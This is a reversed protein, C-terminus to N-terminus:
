AEWGMLFNERRIQEPTFNVAEQPLRETYRRGWDTLIQAHRSGQESIRRLRQPDWHPSLHRRLAAIREAHGAVTGLDHQEQPDDALNFLQVQPYGDHVVLKWDGQRVMANVEDRTNVTCYLSIVARDPDEDAHGALLHTLNVGHMEPLAPGRGIDILTPALDLLSVPQDISRGPPLRAPDRFILPVGVSGEYMSSKWWLGNEGIMDGHDSAYIVLCNDLGLAADVADLIKGVYGDLLEVLGYYAARARRVDEPGVVEMKRNAYWRRVAPHVTEAFDVPMTPNTLREYYYDFLDPPCVYPCHPGYHGITMLLPADNGYGGLYDCTAATVAEDYAILSSRGPGSRRVVEGGQGSMGYLVEGYGIGRGGLITPTIDGVLRTAFGHRQDPGLFHMRGALVTEYGAVGLSHAFTARDSRLSAANDMCETASIHLGAMVSMRSPVCLPSACHDLNPTRVISDGAFGAVRPHHQDSLIFIIHPRDSM